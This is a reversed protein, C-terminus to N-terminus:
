FSLFDQVGGDVFGCSVVRFTKETSFFEIGFNLLRWLPSTEVHARTVEFDVELGETGRVGLNRFEEFGGDM